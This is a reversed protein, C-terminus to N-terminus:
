RPACLEDIIRTAATQASAAVAPAIPAGPECSAAEIGYVVCHRPLCGLTRALAIAAAVGLGHSSADSGPAPVAAQACDIRHVTGPPAGSVVADVLVVWDAEQMLAILRAADGTAETVRVDQALRARLLGAVLRGVGDDGRDPNGIGIVLRRPPEAM